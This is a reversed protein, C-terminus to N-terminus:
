MTVAVDEETKGETDKKPQVMGLRVAWDERGTERILENALDLRRVFAKPTGVVKVVKGHMKLAETYENAIGLLAVSCFLLIVLLIKGEQHANGALAADLYVLLTAFAVISSEFFTPERLWQGSTVAKLDDVAGRMRVWRDQSLLILLDGQVGPESAGKWGVTARCRVVHVNLLRALMLMGIVALAWWDRLFSLLLLVIVTLAVALLYTATSLITSTDVDHIDRLFKGYLTSNEVMGSVSLTTLHGTRGVKQLFLVTAGNEVRFVYGSTMAACAPYEGGNLEPASQQKHLGPCLVLADLLSSNGTLATRRAVTSLDALAVLGAADLSVKPYGKSLWSQLAAPMAPERKLPLYTKFRNILDM